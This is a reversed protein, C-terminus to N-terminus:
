VQEVSHGPGAPSQAEQHSGLDADDRGLLVDLQPKLRHAAQLGDTVLEGILGLPWLVVEHFSQEVGQLLGDDHRPDHRILCLGALYPLLIVPAPQAPLPIGVRVRAVVRKLAALQTLVVQPESLLM